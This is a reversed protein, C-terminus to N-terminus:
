KLLITCEIADNKMKLTMSTIDTGKEVETLLVVEQASGAPITGEFTSLDNMLMTTLQARTYSKNVTIKYSGKRNWLDVFQNSIGTNKLQFKLVLIEKGATADLSFFSGEDESYSNCLQYGTYQISVGDPLVFYDELNDYVPEAPIGDSNAGGHEPATITEDPVEPEEYVTNAAQQWAAKREDALKIQEESLLRSRNSADYRLLTVAAYEGAQDMQEDSLKPFDDSCGCLTLIMLCMAVSSVRAFIKRFRM